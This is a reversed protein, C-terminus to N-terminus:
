LPNMKDLRDAISNLEIEMIAYTRTDPSPDCDRSVYGMFGAIARVINTFGWLEVLAKLERKAEIPMEPM